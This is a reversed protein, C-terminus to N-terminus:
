PPLPATIGGFTKDFRAHTGCFGITGLSNGTADTFEIEKDDPCRVLPGNPSQDLNVRALYAKTDAESMTQVLSRTAVGGTDRGLKYLTASVARSLYQALPAMAAGGSASGATAPSSAAAANPAVAAPPEPASNKCGVILSSFLWIKLFRRM